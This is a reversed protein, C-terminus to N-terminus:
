RFRNDGASTKKRGGERRIKWRSITSVSRFRFNRVPSEQEVRSISNESPERGPASVVVSKKALVRCANQIFTITFHPLRNSCYRDLPSEGNYRNIIFSAIFDVSLSNGPSVPQSRGVPFVQRGYEQEALRSLCDAFIANRAVSVGSQFCCRACLTSLASPNNLFFPSVLSGERSLVFLFERASHTYM